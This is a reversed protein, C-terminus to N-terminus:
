ESNGGRPTFVKLMLRLYDALNDPRAMYGQAHGLSEVLGLAKLESVHHYIVPLARKTHAALDSAGLRGRSLLLLMIHLRVEHGLASFFDSMFKVDAEITHECQVMGLDCLVRFAQQIATRDHVQSAAAEVASLQATFTNDTAWLTNRLMLVLLDDMVSWKGPEGVSGDVSLELNTPGNVSRRVNREAHETGLETLAIKHM